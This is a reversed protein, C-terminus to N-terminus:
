SLIAISISLVRNYFFIRCTTQGQAFEALQKVRHLNTLNNSGTYIRCTTQGQAFEICAETTAKFVSFDYEIEYWANKLLFQKVKKWDSSKNSTRTVPM